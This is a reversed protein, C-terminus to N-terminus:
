TVDGSRLAVQPEPVVGMLAVERGRGALGKLRYELGAVLDALYRAPAKWTTVEDSVIVPVNRLRQLLRTLDDLRAGCGRHEFGGELM